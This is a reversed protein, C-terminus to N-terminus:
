RGNEQIHKDYAADAKEREYANIAAEVRNVFSRLDDVDNGEIVMGDQDQMLVIAVHDGDDPEEGYEERHDDVVDVEVDYSKTWNTRISM